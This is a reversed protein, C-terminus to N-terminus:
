NAFIILSSRMYFLIAKDKNMDIYFQEITKIDHDVNNYEPM